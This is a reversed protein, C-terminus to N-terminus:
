AGVIVHAGGSGFVMLDQSRLDYICHSVVVLGLGVWTERKRSEVTCFMQGYNHIPGYIKDHLKQIVSHVGCSKLTPDM